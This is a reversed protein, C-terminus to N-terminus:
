VPSENKHYVTMPAVKVGDIALKWMLELLICMQGLSEDFFTCEDMLCYSNIIPCQKEKM